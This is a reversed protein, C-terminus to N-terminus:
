ITMSDRIKNLEQNYYEAEIGNSIGERIVRLSEVTKNENSIYVYTYRPDKRVVEDIRQVINSGYNRNDNLNIGVFVEQGRIVVIVETLGTEEEIRKEIIEFKTLDGVDSLIYPSLEDEPIDRRIQRCASFSFLFIALMIYAVFRKLKDAEM